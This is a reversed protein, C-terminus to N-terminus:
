RTTLARAVAGLVVHQGALWDAVADASIGTGLMLTARRLTTQRRAARHMQDSLRTQEAKLRTLLLTAETTM